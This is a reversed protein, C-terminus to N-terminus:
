PNITINYDSINIKTTNYVYNKVYEIIFNKTDNSVLDKPSIYIYIDKKNESWSIGGYILTTNLHLGKYNSNILIVASKAAIDIQNIILDDKSVNKSIFNNITVLSMILIALFLISFELTIQGKNLKILMPIMM